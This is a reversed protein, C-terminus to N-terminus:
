VQTARSGPTATSIIRAKACLGFVIVKLRVLLERYWRSWCQVTLEMVIGVRAVLVRFCYTGRYLVVVLGSGARRDNIAFAFHVSLGDVAATVDGGTMSSDALVPLMGTTATHGTTLMMVAGIEVLVMWTVESFDAHSVEVLHLVGEPLGDDIEILYAYVVCSFGCKDPSAIVSIYPDIARPGRGARAARSTGRRRRLCLCRM